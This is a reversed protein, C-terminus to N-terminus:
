THTAPPLTPTALPCVGVGALPFWLPSRAIVRELTADGVLADVVAIVAPSCPRQGTEWGARASEVSVWEAEDAAGGVDPDRGGRYRHAFVAVEVRDPVW